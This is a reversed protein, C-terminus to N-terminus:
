EYLRARLKEAQEIAIQAGTIDGRDVAQRAARDWKVMSMVLIFRRFRYFM